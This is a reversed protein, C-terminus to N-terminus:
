TGCSAEQPASPFAAPWAKLFAHCARLLRADDFRAGALQIGIPLGDDTFGCPLSAAPQQTLNFPYSYPTWEMWDRMGSGPPVDHGAEFPPIAVSPTLMLDHSDFFRDLHGNLRTRATQADLLDVASFQEGFRAIERLGPDMVGHHQAPIHSLQNASASAWLVRYTELSSEIEPEIRTVTAGLAELREAAEGLHELIRRDPAACGLTPCMAIRLGDLRGDARCQEGWDTPQGPVSFYDHPDFRGIVNLMLLADDVTRTLPGIHSLSAMTSPPWQPVWGFTSKFGFVGCFAAPIRISGGSDGGQHLVGMNLACAAAAGGSSGGPTRSLDWPNRTIGYVRSDTVGKCGFEPTTTKGLLVAGAERMARAPPADRTCAATSTTLSGERAPMGRVETLDKMSTPVGDVASLPSGRKWRAASARAAERAGEYDVHCYANVADNFRQIRELSADVAEVPTWDGRQFGAVLETASLDGLEHEVSM